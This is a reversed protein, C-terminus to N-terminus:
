HGIHLISNLHLNDHQCCLLRIRHSMPAFFFFHALVIGLINLMETVYPAECRYDGCCQLFNFLDCNLALGPLSTLLVRDQFGFQSQTNM